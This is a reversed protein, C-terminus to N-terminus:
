KKAQKDADALAVLRDQLAVERKNSEILQANMVGLEATATAAFEAKEVLDANLAKMHDRAEKIEARLASCDERSTELNQEVGQLRTGTQILEKERRDAQKVAKDRDQKVADLGKQLTEGESRCKRMDTIATSLEAKADRLQGALETNKATVTELDRRSGELDARVQNLEGSATMCERTKDELRQATQSVRETQEVLQLRSQELERRVADLEQARNDSLTRLTELDLDQKEIVASFEQLEAQYGEEKDSFAQRAEEHQENAAHVLDLWVPGLSAMLKDLPMEPIAAVASEARQKRWLKLHKGIDNPSGHNDNEERILITSPDKGKLVLQDALSFVVEETIKQKM